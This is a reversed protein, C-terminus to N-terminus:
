SKLIDLTFLENIEFETFIHKETKIICVTCRCDFEKNGGNGSLCVWIQQPEDITKELKELKGNEKLESLFRGISNGDLNVLKSLGIVQFSIKELIKIKFGNVNFEIKGM